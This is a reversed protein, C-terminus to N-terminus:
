RDDIADATTKDPDSAPGGAQEVLKDLFKGPDAEVKDLCAGSCCFVFTYGQYSFHGSDEEVEFKRGSIPCVTVDGPKATWNDVVTRGEFEDQAPAQAQDPDPSAADPSNTEPTESKKCGLGLGLALALLLSLALPTTRTM